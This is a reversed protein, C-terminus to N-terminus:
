ASPVEKRRRLWGLGALIPLSTLALAIGAPEPASTLTTGNELSGGGTNSFDNIIFTQYFSFPNVISFSSGNAPDPSVVSASGGMSGTATTEGLQPSLPAAPAGGVTQSNFSTVAGAVVGSTMTVSSAALGSTSVSGDSMISTAAPATPNNFGSGGGGNAVLEVILKDSNVGIPGTYTINVNDSSSVTGPSTTTNDTVLTVIFNGVVSNFVMAGSGDANSAGSQTVTANVTGGSLVDTARIIFDARAPASAGLVAAGVLAAGILPLFNRLRIM